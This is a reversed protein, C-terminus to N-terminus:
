NKLWSGDEFNIKNKAALWFYSNAVRKWLLYFHHFCLNSCVHNCFHKVRLFTCIKKKLFNSCSLPYLWRNQKIKIMMIMCPRYAKIIGVDPHKYSIIFVYFLLKFIKFVIRMYRLPISCHLLYDYTALTLQICIKFTLENDINCAYM